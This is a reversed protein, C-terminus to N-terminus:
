SKQEGEPADAPKNLFKPTTLSPLAALVGGKAYESIPEIAVKEEAAQGSKRARDMIRACEAALENSRKVIGNLDSVADIAYVHYFAREERESKLMREIVSKEAGLTAIQTAAESLRRKLDSAEQVAADREQKMQDHARFADDRELTLRENEALAEDMRGLVSEIGERIEKKRGAKTNGNAM